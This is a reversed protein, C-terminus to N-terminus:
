GGRLEASGRLPAHFKYLMLECIFLAFDPRTSQVRTHVHKRKTGIPHRGCPVIMAPFGAESTPDLGSTRVVQVEGIWGTSMECGVVTTPVPVATLQVSSANSRAIRTPPMMMKLQPPFAVIRSVDSFCNLVSTSVVRSPCPCIVNSPLAVVRSKWKSPGSKRRVLVM